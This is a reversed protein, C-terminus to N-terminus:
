NLSPQDDNLRRYNGNNRSQETIGPLGLYYNSPPVTVDPLLTNRTSLCRSTENRPGNYSPGNMPYGRLHNDHYRRRDSYYSGGDHYGHCQRRRRGRNAYVSDNVNNCQSGIRNVHRTQREM